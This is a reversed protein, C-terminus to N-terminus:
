RRGRAPQENDAQDYITMVLTQRRLRDLLAVREQQVKENYLSKRIQDQAEEFSIPGAAQRKDVRVIHFSSPGELVTSVQGLPLQGLAENVVPVAYSGPSTEMLGGNSKSLSPGDSEAKALDEFKEGRQLREFIQSAKAKAEASSAHRASEVVIEHWTILAPRQFDRDRQHDNYYKLMEPLGVRLKDGLKQQLFAQALFDQRFQEHIFDLSRRPKHEAMKQKLQYENEAMYKKLLPPLEEDHWLKEAYDLVQDLQKPNKVERKAEQILLSREILGMLVGKSLMTLEDQNPARMGPRKHLQEKIAVVLDYQTIIEDGVRAVARGAERSDSSFAPTRLEATSEASAQVVEPDLRAPERSAQPEDGIPGAPMPKVDAGEVPKLPLPEGAPELAPLPAPTPEDAAAELPLPAPTPVSATSAESALPEEGSDPKAEPETAGDVSELSLPVPQTASAEVPTAEVQVPTTEVEVPSPSREPEVPPLSPLEDQPGTAAGNEGAPLPPLEAQPEAPLAVSDDPGQPTAASADDAPVAPSPSNETEPLPPLTLTPVLQPNEGLLPDPQRRVPTASTPGPPVTSEAPAAAADVDAPEEAAPEASGPAHLPEDPAEVAPPLEPQETPDSADESAQTAPAPESVASDAALASDGNSPDAEDATPVKANSARGLQSMDPMLQPDPGLLSDGAHAEAEDPELGAPSNSSPTSAPMGAEAEPSPGEPAQPTSEELSPQSDVASSASPTAEDAPTTPELGEASIVPSADGDTALGDVVPEPPLLADAARGTSAATTASARPETGSGTRSEATAFGTPAAPSASSPVSGALDPQIAPQAGPEAAAANANTASLADPPLDGPKSWNPSSPATTAVRSASRDRLAPNSARGSWHESDLDALTEKQVPKTGVGRNITEHLPPSPVLGVPAPRGDAGPM